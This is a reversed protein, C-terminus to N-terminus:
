STKFFFSFSYTKSMDISVLEVNFDSQKKNVDDFM